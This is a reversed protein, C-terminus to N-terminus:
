SLEIPQYPIEAGAIEYLQESPACWGSQNERDWTPAGFEPPASEVPQGKVQDRAWAVADQGADALLIVERLGAMWGDHFYKANQDDNM